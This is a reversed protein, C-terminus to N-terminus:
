NGLYVVRHRRVDAGVRARLFYVGSAARMGAEDRGDWTAAHRGAPLTSRLLWKVRRGAADHVGIEVPQDGGTVEYAYSM